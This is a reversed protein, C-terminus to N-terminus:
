SNPTTTTTCSSTNSDPACVATTGHHPTRSQSDRVMLPDRSVSGRSSGASHSSLPCGRLYVSVALLERCMMTTYVDRSATTWDNVHDSLEFGKCRCLQSPIPRTTLVVFAVSSPATQPEPTPLPRHCARHLSSYLVSKSLLDQVVAHTRWLSSKVGYLVVKKGRARAAPVWNALTDLVASHRASDVNCTIWLM